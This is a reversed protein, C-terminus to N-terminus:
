SRAPESRAPEATAAGEIKRDADGRRGCAGFGRRSVACEWIEGFGEDRYWKSVEDFSHYHAYPAGFIDMLALASERRSLRPYERVGLANVSQCFWQFPIAMANSLRAFAPPPIRTTAARITNVVPTVFKEYSYLWICFTGDSKLLPCLGRFTRETNDTAHLVGMSHILDFSSPALPPNQLDGQVFHVRDARANPRKHRFAHGHELGSSLDLAVVEVGFETYAVSQSGNGCGGDLMVLGDLDPKPIRITELFFVRVRGDLEMGWTRDGVEHYEWELSFNARTQRDYDSDVGAKLREKLQDLAPLSAKEVHRSLKGWHDKLSDPLMRPIGGVVPYWHDRECHLLGESVESDDDAEVALSELTLPGHCDPCRLFDLLRLYM